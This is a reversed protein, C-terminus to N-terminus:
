LITSRQASPETLWEKAITWALAITRQLQWASRGLVSVVAGHKYTMSAGIALEGAERWSAVEGSQEELRERLRAAFDAQLRAAFVYMAGQHTYSAWIGPRGSGSGTPTAPAIRQRSCYILEGGFSVNMAAAYAAYCFMEGRLMRGPVVIDSLLLAAGPGLAVDTASSFGADRYLTVPEPRYELMAGRGLTLKTRQASPRERSPHVKTYSQNTVFAAAGEDLTLEIRYRDGALMGPSCDMMCVALSGDERPFSKAVKLPAAHRVHVLRTCSGTRAFVAELEGTYAHELM